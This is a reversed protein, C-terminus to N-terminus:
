MQLVITVQVKPATGANRPAHVRAAEIMKDFAPTGDKGSQGVPTGALVAGVAHGIERERGKGNEKGLTGGKETELLVHLLSVSAVIGPGEETNLANRAIIVDALRKVRDFSGLKEAEKIIQFFGKTLRAQQLGHARHLVRPEDRQIGRPIEGGLGFVNMAFVAGADPVRFTLDSMVVARDSRDDDTGAM